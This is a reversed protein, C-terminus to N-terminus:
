IEIEKNETVETVEAPLVLEQGDDTEEVVISENHKTLELLEDNDTIIRRLMARRPGFLKWRKIAKDLSKFFIYREEEEDSKKAYNPIDVLYIVVFIEHLKDIDPKETYEKILIYDPDATYCLDASM